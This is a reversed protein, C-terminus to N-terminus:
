RQAGGSGGHIRAPKGPERRAGPPEKRRAAPQVPRGHREVKQAAGSRVGRRQGTDLAGLPDGSLAAQGQSRAAPRGAHRRPDPCVLRREVPQKAADRRRGEQDGARPRDRDHNPDARCGGPRDAATGGQRGARRQIRGRRGRAARQGPRQFLHPLPGAPDDAAGGALWIVAGFALAVMALVFAGVAAYNARTEM